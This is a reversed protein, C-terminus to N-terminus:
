YITFFFVYCIKMDTAYKKVHFNDLSVIKLLKGTGMQVKAM